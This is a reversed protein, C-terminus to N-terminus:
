KWLRAVRTRLDALWPPKLHIMKFVATLTVFTARPTVGVLSEQACILCRREVDVIELQQRCRGIQGAAVELKLSDLFAQMTDM